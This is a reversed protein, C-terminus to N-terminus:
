YGRKYAEMEDSRLRTKMEAMVAGYKGWVDVLDPEELWKRQEYFKRFMKKIKEQSTLPYENEDVQERSGPDIQCTSVPRGPMIINRHLKPYVSYWVVASLVFALLTFWQFEQLAMQSIREIILVGIILLCSIVAIVAFLLCVIVAPRLRRIMAGDDGQVM